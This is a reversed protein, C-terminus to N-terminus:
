QLTKLKSLLLGRKERSVPLIADDSMMVIGGNGRIYKKVHIINILHSKYIRVFGAEDLMDEFEKLTKSVVSCEKNALHFTTYNKIGECRVIERLEAVFVEKASPLIIKQSQAEIYKYKEPKDNKVPVVPIPQVVPQILRKKKIKEIATKLESPVIPKLLYDLASFKIAQLAYRDYATIFVLDFTIEKLKELIEFGTGPSLQVDMFVVDPKKENIAQLGDLVGEAEDVIEIDGSAYKHILGSLTKRVGEEDDIILAKLM